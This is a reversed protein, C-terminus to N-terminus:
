FDRKDQCEGRFDYFTIFNVGSTLAWTVLNALKDPEVENRKDATLIVALHKPTKSLKSIHREILQAEDELYRKPHRLKIINETYCRLKERLELGFYFVAEIIDALWHLMMWLEFYVPHKM